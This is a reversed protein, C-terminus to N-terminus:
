CFTTSNEWTYIFHMQLTMFHLRAWTSFAKHFKLHSSHDASSHSCHSANQTELRFSHRAKLKLQRLPLTLLLLIRLNKLHEAWYFGCQLKEQLSTARHGQLSAALQCSSSIRSNQEKGRERGQRARHPPCRSLLKSLHHTVPLLCRLTLLQLTGRRM